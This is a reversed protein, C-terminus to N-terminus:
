NLDNDTEGAAKESPLTLLKRHGTATGHGM